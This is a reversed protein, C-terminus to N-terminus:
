WLRSTAKQLTGKSGQDSKHHLRLRTAYRQVDTGFNAVIIVNTPAQPSLSPYPSESRAESREQKIAWM